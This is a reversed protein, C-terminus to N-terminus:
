RRCVERRVRSHRIIWSGPVRRGDLVTQPAPVVGTSFAADVPLLLARRRQPEFGSRKIRYDDTLTLLVLSTVFLGFPIAYAPATASVFGLSEAFAVGVLSAVSIFVLSTLLSKM